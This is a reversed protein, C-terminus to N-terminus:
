GTLKKLLKKISILFGIAVFSVGLMLIWAFFAQTTAWDIRKEVERLSRAIAIFGSAVGNYHMLVVAYRLGSKPQWTFRNDQHNKAYAFVGKPFSLTQGNLEATSDVTKGNEDFSVLFPSLTTSIDSKNMGLQLSNGKALQAVTDEAIQIQPDNASLRLSQQTEVYILGVIMTILIAVPIWYVITKVLIKM